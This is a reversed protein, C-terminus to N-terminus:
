DRYDTFGAPVNVDIERGEPVRPKSWIPNPTTAQESAPKEPSLFPEFQSRPPLGFLRIFPGLQSRFDMWRGSPVTALELLWTRRQDIEPDGQIRSLRHLEHRHIECWKALRRLDSESPVGTNGSASLAQRALRMFVSSVSQPHGGGGQREDDVQQADEVDGIQDFM